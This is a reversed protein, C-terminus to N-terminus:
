DSECTVRGLPDGQTANVISAAARLFPRNLHTSLRNMSIYVKGVKRTKFGPYEFSRRARNVHKCMRNQRGMSYLHHVERTESSQTPISRRIRISNFVVPVCRAPARRHAQTPANVYLNANSGIISYTARPNQLTVCRNRQNAYIQISVLCLCSLSAPVSINLM